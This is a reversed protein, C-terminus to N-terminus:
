ENVRILYRVAKNVPRTEDTGQYQLELIGWYTMPTGGSGGSLITTACTVGGGKSEHVRNHYKTGETSVTHTKIGDNQEVGLAASNGGLGRLFRGRYDPISCIHKDKCLGSNLLKAKEDDTPAGNCEMWNEWDEPTGAQTWIIVAGLPAGGGSGKATIGNFAVQAANLDVGNYEGDYRADAVKFAYANVSLLTLTLVLFSLIKMTTGREEEM